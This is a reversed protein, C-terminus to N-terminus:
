WACGCQVGFSWEDVLCRVTWGEKLDRASEPSLDNIFSELDDERQIFLLKDRESLPRGALRRLRRSVRSSVPEAHLCGFRDIEVEIKIMGKRGM